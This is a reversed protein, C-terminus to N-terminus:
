ETSRQNSSTASRSGALVREYIAALRGTVREPGLEALARGRGARALRAALDPSDLVRNVARSLAGTDHAPVLLAEEGDRVAEPIGGVRTAVVPVGALLGELLALPLGEAHSPLVLCSASALLARKRDRDVWGPLEVAPELGHAAVAERVAAADRGEGALVLRAQPHRERVGAFAEVLDLAGKERTLRGLCVVTEPRGNGAAPPPPATVLNPVADVRDLRLLRGVEDAWAPTAAVVADAHRAAHRAARRAVAGALGRRRLGREWGSGHLQLVVPVRHRRALAVAAGKRAFSGNWSSHVHVLDVRGHRCLGGLRRLGRLAQGLKALRTGEVSTVVPLLEYHDALPSELMAAVVGAVGGHASPDPGVVAVRPRRPPPEPAPPSM